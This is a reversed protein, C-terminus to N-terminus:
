KIEEESADESDVEAPDQSVSLTPRVSTLRTGSGLKKLVWQQIDANYVLTVTGDSWINNTGKLLDIQQPTLQIVPEAIKDTVVLSEPLNALWENAEQLSTVTSPLIFTWTGMAGSGGQYSGLPMTDYSRESVFFMNSKSNRASFKDSLSKFVAFGNPTAGFTGDWKNIVIKNMINSMVGSVQDVNGGYVTIPDGQSDVFDTTYIKGDYPEYYTASNSVELQIKGNTLDASSGSAVYIKLYQGDSLTVTPTRTGATGVTLQFSSVWSGDANVVNGYLYTDTTGNFSLTYTGKPLQLDRGRYTGKVGSISYAEIDTPAISDNWLNKGVANTDVKTRGYIPCINEYPTWSTAESGKEIQIRIKLNNFVTGTRWCQLLLHSNAAPFATDTANLRSNIDTETTSGRIWGSYNQNFLAIAFTIGTGEGITMSGSIKTISLTYTEGSTWGVKTPNAIQMNGASTTTGNIIYCEEDEDYRITLGLKDEGNQYFPLVNKGAGATWPSDYGHLDQIPELQVKLSQAPILDQGDPISVIDGTATELPLIDALQDITIGDAGPDGKPIKFNLEPDEPTGTITVEAPSGAPLTEVSGIQIDPTAGTEGPVGQPGAPGEPGRQGTEGRPGQPGREGRIPPTKFIEGNTFVISLSYDSNFLVHDIGNGTEGTDGKEGQIGQPIGLILKGNTYEATADSGPPLTVAEATMGTVKEVEAIVIAVFQDFQSATIPQTESGNLPVNANVGLAFIPYTTLRETVEDDESTTGVLNVRVDGISSLVEVPVICVGQPDLTKAVQTFNGDNTWIADIHDFGSWNEGLDFRAEVYKVTEAAFCDIGGTKILTQQTASFTIIEKDM